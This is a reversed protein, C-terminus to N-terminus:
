RAAKMTSAKTKVIYLGQHLDLRLSGDANLAQNKIGTWLLNGNLDFVKAEMNLDSAAFNTRM